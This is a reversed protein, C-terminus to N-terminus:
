FVSINLYKAPNKKLDSLTEDLTKSLKTMNNYLEPDNVLMGLSGDKSNLKAIAKNLEDTSQQISKLTKELEPGSLSNTTKEVNTLINSVTSNNKSLNGAFSNINNMILNLQATQKNLETSLKSLQEVAKDVNAFTNHLHMQTQLNLINNVAMAVSDITGITGNVNNMIPKVESGLSSLLDSAAKPNIVDQDKLLVTTSAEPLHFNVVKDSSILSPASIEAETGVPVDYGDNVHLTVKIRTNKELEIDKVRGIQVGKLLVPASPQLGSVDDYYVFVDIGSDFLGKGQLLKIGFITCAIAVLVLIGIKIENNIKM